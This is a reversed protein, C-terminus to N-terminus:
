FREGCSVSCMSCFDFRADNQCGRVAYLLPRQHFWHARVFWSICWCVNLGPMSLWWYYWKADPAISVAQILSKCKWLTLIECGQCVFCSRWNCCQKVWLPYLLFLVTGCIVCTMSLESRCLVCRTSMNQRFASMWGQTAIELSFMRERTTCPHLELHVGRGFSHYSTYRLSDHRVWRRHDTFTELLGRSWHQHQAEQSATGVM